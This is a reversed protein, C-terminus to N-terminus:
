KYRNHQTQKKSLRTEQTQTKHERNRTDQRTNLQRLKKGLTKRHTSEIITNFRKNKAMWANPDAKKGTPPVGNWQTHTHTNTM